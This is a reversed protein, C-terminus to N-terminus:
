RDDRDENCMQDLLQEEILTEYSSSLNNLLFDKEEDGTAAEWELEGGEEPYCDEPPGSLKAPIIPTYHLVLIEFIFGNIEVEYM